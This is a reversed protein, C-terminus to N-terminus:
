QSIQPVSNTLNASATDIRTVGPAQVRPARWHQQRTAYWQPRAVPRPPHHSSRHLGRGGPRAHPSRRQRGSRYNRSVGSKPAAVLGGQRRTPGSSACHSNRERRRRSQELCPLVRREQPRVSLCLQSQDALSLVLHADFFHDGLTKLARRLVSAPFDPLLAVEVVARPAKQM